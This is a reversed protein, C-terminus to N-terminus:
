NIRNLEFQVTYSVTEIVPQSETPSSPTIIVPSALKQETTEPFFFFFFLRHISNMSASSYTKIYIHTPYRAFVSDSSKM